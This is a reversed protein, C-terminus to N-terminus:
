FNQPGVELQLEDKMWPVVHPFYINTVQLTLARQAGVEPPGKPSKVEDKTAM